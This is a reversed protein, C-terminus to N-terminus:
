IKIEISKKEKEIVGGLTNRFFVLVYDKFIHCTLEHFPIVKCKFLQLLGKTM